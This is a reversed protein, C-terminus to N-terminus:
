CVARKNTEVTLSFFSLCFWCWGENRLAEFNNLADQLKLETVDGALPHSSVKDDLHGSIKVDPTELAWEQSLLFDENWLDFEM